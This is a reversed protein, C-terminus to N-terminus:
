KTNLILNVFENKSKVQLKILDKIKFSSNNKEPIYIQVINDFKCNNKQLIDCYFYNLYNLSKFNNNIKIKSRTENNKKIM